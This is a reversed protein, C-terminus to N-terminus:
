VEENNRSSCSHLEYMYVLTDEDFYLAYVMSDRQCPVMTSSTRGGFAATRAIIRSEFM